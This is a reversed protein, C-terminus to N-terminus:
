KFYYLIVFFLIGLTVNFIAVVHFNFLNTITIVFANKTQIHEEPQSSWLLPVRVSQFNRENKFEPVVLVAWVSSRARQSLSSCCSM